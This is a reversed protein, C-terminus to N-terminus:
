GRWLTKEKRGVRGRSDKGAHVVTRHAVNAARGAAQAFEGEAEDHGADASVQDGVLDGHHARVPAEPASVAKADRKNRQQEANTDQEEVAVAFDSPQEGGGPRQEDQSAHDGVHMDIKLRGSEKMGEDHQDQQDASQSQDRPGHARM